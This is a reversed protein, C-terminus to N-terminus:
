FCYGEIVFYDYASLYIKLLFFNFCFQFQTLSLVYRKIVINKQYKQKNEAYATLPPFLLLFFVASLIPYQVM